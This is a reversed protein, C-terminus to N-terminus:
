KPDRQALPIANKVYKMMRAHERIACATLELSDSSINFAQGANAQQAGRFLNARPCPLRVFAKRRNYACFAPDQAKGHSALGFVRSAEAALLRLSYHFCRATNRVPSADAEVEDFYKTSRVIRQGFRNEFLRAYSRQYNPGVV